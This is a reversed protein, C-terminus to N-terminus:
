FAKNCIKFFSCFSMNKNNYFCFCLLLTYPCKCCLIIIIFIIAFILPLTLQESQLTTATWVFLLGTPWLLLEGVTSHLVLGLTHIHTWLIFIILPTDASMDLSQTHLTHTHTHTHTHIKGSEMSHMPAASFPRRPSIQKPLYAPLIPWSTSSSSTATATLDERRRRRRRKGTAAVTRPSHRRQHPHRHHHHHHHPRCVALAQLM